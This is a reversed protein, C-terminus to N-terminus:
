QPPTFGISRKNQDPKPSAFHHIAKDIKYMFFSRDYYHRGTYPDNVLEGPENFEQIGIEKKLESSPIFFESVNEGTKNQYASFISHFENIWTEDIDGRPPLNQKLIALSKLPEDLIEM